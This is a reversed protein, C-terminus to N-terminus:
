RGGLLPELILDALRRRVWESHAELSEGEANWCTLFLALAEILSRRIAEHLGDNVGATVLRRAAAEAHECDWHQWTTRAPSRPPAGRRSSDWYPPTATVLNKTARRLEDYYADWAAIEDPTMRVKPCESASHAKTCRRREPDEPDMQDDHMHWRVRRLLAQEMDLALLVFEAPFAWGYLDVFEGESGLPLHEPEGPRLAKAVPHGLSSAMRVREDDVAHGAALRRELIRCIASEDGRAAARELRRRDDRNANRFIGSRRM